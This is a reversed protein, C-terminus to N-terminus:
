IKRYGAAGFAQVSDPHVDAVLDDSDRKMKVPVIVDKKVAGEADAKAKIEAEKAEKAKTATAANEKTSM